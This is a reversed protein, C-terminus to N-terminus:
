RWERTVEELDAEELDEPTMCVHFEVRADWALFFPEALRPVDSPKEVDVIYIAGREGEYETFYAAEPKLVELTRGVLEGATGNRVTENFTEVPIKVHMLMRM